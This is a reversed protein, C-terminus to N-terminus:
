RKKNIISKIKEKEGKNLGLLMECGIYGILIIACKLILAMWSTIPLLINIVIGIGATILIALLQKSFTDAFYLKVDVIEKKSYYINMIISNFLVNNVVLGIVVAFVSDTIFILMISIIINCLAGIGLIVTRAKLINKAKLICTITNQSLHLLASIMLVLSLFWIKESQIGDQSGVWLTVFDRGMFMFGIVIIQLILLQMRSPEIIRRTIQKKNEGSFVAESISPYYINQIVTSMNCYLLYLQTIISFTTIVNTSSEKWGIIIKGSSTNIQNILSQFLIAVTFILMSKLLPFDFKGKLLKIKGWRFFVLYAFLMLITLLVDIIALSLATGTKNVILVVLTLRIFLRCLKLVKETSYYSYALAIGSFAHLFLSMAINLSMVLMLTEAEQYSTGIEKGGLFQPLLLSLIIGITMAIGALLLYSSLATKISSQEKEKEGSTKYKIIYRTVTAGLGIDVVAIYNAVSNVLDYLGYQTSGLANLLLPTYFIGVVCDALLLLYSVILGINKSKLTKSIRM